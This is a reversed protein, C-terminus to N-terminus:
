QTPLDSLEKEYLEGENGMITIKGSGCAMNFRNNKINPFQRKFEAVHKIIKDQYDKDLHSISKELETM